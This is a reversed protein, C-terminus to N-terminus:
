IFRLHFLSVRYLDFHKMLVFHKIHTISAVCRSFFVFVFVINKCLMVANVSEDNQKSGLFLPFAMKQAGFLCCLLVHRLVKNRKTLLM